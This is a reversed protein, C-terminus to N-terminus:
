RSNCLLSKAINNSVISSYLNLEGNSPKGWESDEIYISGGYSSTVNGGVLKVYRLTLTVNIGSLFFHRNNAAATIKILNKMDTNTGVIELTNAVAVHNSGSITCDTSRTFTGTNTTAACDWEVSYVNGFSTMFIVYM